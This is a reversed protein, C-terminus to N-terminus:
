IDRVFWRARSSWLYSFAGIFFGVGGVWSFIQGLFQSSEMMKSSRMEGTSWNVHGPVVDGKSHPKPSQWSNGTYQRTEGSRDLAQFTPRYVRKQDQKRNEMKVVTLEAKTSKGEFSSASQLLYFGIVGFVFSMMMVIAPTSLPINRMLGTRKVTILAM